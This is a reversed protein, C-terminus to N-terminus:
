VHFWQFSVKKMNSCINNWVYCAAGGNKRNKDVGVLNYSDKAVESDYITNDLRAELIGIIAANSSSAICCLEDVKQLFRNINLSLFYIGKKTFVSFKHRVHCRNVLGLNLKISQLQVRVSFWKTRLRVSLWKAM